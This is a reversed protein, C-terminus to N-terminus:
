KLFYREGRPTTAVEWGVPLPRQDEAIDFSATKIHSHTQPVSSLTQHLGAPSSHSRGHSIPLSPHGPRPLTGGHNPLGQLGLALGATNYGTSDASSERSHNGQRPRPSFFSAPLNRQKMPVQQKMPAAPKLVDFLADFDNQSGERVHVVQTGQSQETRSM